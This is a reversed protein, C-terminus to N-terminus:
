VPGPVVPEGGASAGPPAAHRPGEQRGHWMWQGTGRACSSTLWAACGPPDAQRQRLCARQDWHVV